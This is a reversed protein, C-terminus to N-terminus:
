LLRRKIFRTGRIILSFFELISSSFYRRFLKIKVISSFFTSEEDGKEFSIAYYNVALWDLIDQELFDGKNFFCAGFRMSTWVRFRYEERFKSYVYTGFTEFESFGAKQLDVINITNIIKEFPTDGVLRDNSTIDNLLSKMISSKILMHESIFSRPYDKGLGPFLNGITDFYSKFFETKTDLFPVGDKDFVQIEKVPVTDSDWLLYYEEECVTAFIMKIFQQIYWGCGHQGKPLNMCRSAFLQKLHNIPLLDKENVFIFFDGIPVVGKLEEDGVVYIHSIPLFKKFIDINKCFVLFDTKITPVVLPVRKQIM